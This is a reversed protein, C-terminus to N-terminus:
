LIKAVDKLIGSKGLVYVLFATAVVILIVQNTTFGVVSEVGHIIDGSVQKAGRYVKPIDEVVEDEFGKLFSEVSRIADGAFQASADFASTSYGELSDILGTNRTQDPNVLNVRPDTSSSDNTPLGQGDVFDDESSSNKEAYRNVGYQSLSLLKGAM